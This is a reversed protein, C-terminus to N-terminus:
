WLPNMKQYLSRRERNSYVPDIYEPYITKNSLIFDRLAFNMKVMENWAAALKYDPFADISNESLKIKEGAITSQSAMDRYFLYYIYNAILSKKVTPSTGLSYVLGMWKTNGRSSSTYEKGEKIDKYIQTSAVGATYLKYLDYGLLLEIVKEENENISWKLQQIVETSSAQPITLPGFFYTEDILTAM